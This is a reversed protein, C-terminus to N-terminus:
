LYEPIEDPPINPHLAMNLAMTLLKSGSMIIIDTEKPTIFFNRSNETLSKNIVEETINISLKERNAIEELLDYALTAADVVTPMGISVVPVGLTEKDLRRRSNNVGSGPSIGSDALQVTTALRALRRSSLADIVIVCSPKLSTVVSKIIDASEIGTQGLVGPAFAAVDGFGITDYLKTNLEKIHHSVLLGEVIKPGISDPTVNENGLGAVLVPGDCNPLLAKIKDALLTAIEKVRVSDFQWVRGIDVTIYMGAKKGSMEEGKGPKIEATTVQVGSITEERTIIGDDIGQEANLEHTELALDTRRIEAM